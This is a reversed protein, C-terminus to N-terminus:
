SAGLGHGADGGIDLLVGLRPEVDAHHGAQENVFSKLRDPLSINMTTM